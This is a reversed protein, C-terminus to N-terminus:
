WKLAMLAGQEILQMLHLPAWRKAYSAGWSDSICVERTEANYGIILNIHGGRNQAERIKQKINLPLTQRNARNQTHQNVANQFPESSQFVWMLPLGRDIYSAITKISLADSLEILDRSNSALIPKIMTKMGSLTTGRRGSSEAVVGMLYMDAPIGFYRLYRECTAPVCYGKPGQDIMPIEEIIVDGNLRRRVCDALRKRLQDYGIKKVRGARNAREIPMIRLIVYSKEKVSLMLAHQHWDWRSVKERTKKSGLSDRRPKGLLATLSSELADAAVEIKKAAHHAYRAKADAQNIFIFSLETAQSDDGYLAVAYIPQELLHKEGKPYARYNEMYKTKSEATLNLRDGVEETLDDWLFTDQFLDKGLARNLEEWSVRHVSQPNPPQTWTELYAIDAEIFQTFPVTILKNKIRLKVTRNRYVEVVEADVQKRDKASTWIRADAQLGSLM